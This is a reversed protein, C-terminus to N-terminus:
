RGIRLGIMLASFEEFVPGPEGRAWTV